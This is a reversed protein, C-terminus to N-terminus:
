TMSERVQSYPTLPSSETRDYALDSNRLQSESSLTTVCNMSVRSRLGCLELNIILVGIFCLVPSIDMEITM